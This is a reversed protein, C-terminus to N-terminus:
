IGMHHNTTGVWGPCRDTVVHTYLASAAFVTQLKQHHATHREFYTSGEIFKTTIFEIVLNRRTRQKYQNIRLSTVLTLILSLSSM